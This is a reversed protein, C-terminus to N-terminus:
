CCGSKAKRSASRSGPAAAGLKHGARALNLATRLVDPRPMNALAAGQVHEAARLLVLDRADFRLRLSCWGYNKEREAPSGNM